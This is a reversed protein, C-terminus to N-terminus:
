RTEYSGRPFLRYGDQAGRRPLHALSQAPGKVEYLDADLVEGIRELDERREADTLDTWPIEQDIFGGELLTSHMSAFSIEGTVSLGARRIGGPSWGGQGEVTSVTEFGFVGLHEALLAWERGPRRKLIAVQQPARGAYAVLHFPSGDPGVISNAAAYHDVQESLSHEQPHFVTYGEAELLGELRREGLFSGREARTRSRSIYLRDPLGTTVQPAIRRDVFDRFEPSGGMLDGTGMGQPPVVLEDVTVNGIIKRWPLDIGLLALADQFVDCPEDPLLPFFLIGDVPEVLDLAWLRSLTETLIHGFHEYLIGGYFWRGAIHTPSPGVMPPNRFASNTSTHWCNAAEVLEGTHDYVAADVFWSRVAPGRTLVPRSLTQIEEALSLHPDKLRM